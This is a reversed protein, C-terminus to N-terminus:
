LWKPSPQCVSEYNSTQSAEFDLRHWKDVMVALKDEMMEVAAALNDM